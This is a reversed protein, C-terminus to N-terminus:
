FLCVKHEQAQSKIVVYDVSPPRQSAMLQETQTLWTLMAALAEKFKGAQLLAADLERQRERM